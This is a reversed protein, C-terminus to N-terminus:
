AIQAKGHKAFYDNLAEQVMDQNSIDHEIGILKLQKIVDPDFYVTLTKKGQRSPPQNNTGSDANQRPTSKKPKVNESQLAEALNKKRTM